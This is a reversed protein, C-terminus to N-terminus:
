LSRVLEKFIKGRVEYNPFMGWSACAPSLLVAEGPKALKSAIQVAEEMSEVFQYDHFGNADACAAIKKATAGMLLLKKIKGDFACIWETYDSGKDYGGGILITPTTMAKIGQIAADPNTGKSDNYYRVGNKEEVFEIRHEVAKFTRITKAIVEEPAGMCTAIAVAAMINEYNCQGVLHFEDVTGIVKEMGHFRSYITNDKWFLGEKLEHRSSFYIVPISLQEGFARLVEDDYNLVCFDDDTQNKTISEKVEIYCDMTKHRDLHDPTINLIASVHPHFTIASELQFSSIEAVVMSDERMNLALETYPTGINGVVFARDEGVWNKMIEGVLATTTTKGNTGTIAAITGNGYHYALEIESWIPINANQIQMVFPQELSIGPSIVCYEIQALVEETLEGLVIELEGDMGIQKKLMDRDKNPNGDYLVVRKGAQMLLKAAGVGSKGGGAVLVTHKM